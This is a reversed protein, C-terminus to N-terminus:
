RMEVVSLTGTDSGEQICAVHTWSPEMTFIETGIPFLMDNSTATVTNDGFRVFCNGSTSIRIVQANTPLAVRASAGSIGVAGISAMNPSLSQIARGNSDTQMCAKAM